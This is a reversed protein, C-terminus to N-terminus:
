AASRRCALRVVGVVVVDRRADAKRPRRLAARAHRPVSIPGVVVEDDAAAVRTRVAAGAQVVERRDEAGVGADADDLVAVFRAAVEAGVGSSSRSVARSVIGLKGLLGTYGIVSTMECSTLTISGFMSTGLASENEIPM